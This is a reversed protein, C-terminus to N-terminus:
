THTRLLRCGSQLEHVSSLLACHMFGASAAPLAILLRTAQNVDKSVSLLGCVKAVYTLAFRPLTPYDGNHPLSSAYERLM